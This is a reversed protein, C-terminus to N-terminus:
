DSNFKRWHFRCTKSTKSENIGTVMNSVILNVDEAINPVCLKNSLDDLTNCSGVCKDWKVAFPSYHIDQSYENPHLNMLTPQIMFKSLKVFRVRAHNSANVIKISLGTFM